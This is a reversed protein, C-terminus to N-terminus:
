LGSVVTAVLLGGVGVLGVAGCVRMARLYGARHRDLTETAVGLSGVAVGLSMATVALTFTSGFPDVLLASLTRSTVIYNWYLGLAALSYLLFAGAVVRKAAARISPSLM